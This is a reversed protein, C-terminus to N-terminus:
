IDLSSRMLSLNNDLAIQVARDVTLVEDTFAAEIGAIALIFIFFSLPKMKM